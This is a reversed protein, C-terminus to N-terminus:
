SKDKLRSGIAVRRDAADRVQGHCVQAAQRRSGQRRHHQLKIRGVQRDAQNRQLALAQVLRLQFIKGLETNAVLHRIHRSSGNRLGVASAIALNLDVNIREFQFGM